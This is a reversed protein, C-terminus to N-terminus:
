SAPLGPNEANPNAFRPVALAMKSIIEHWGMGYTVSASAKNKVM